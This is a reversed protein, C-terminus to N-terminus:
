GALMYRCNSPLNVLKHLELSSTPCLVSPMQDIVFRDQLADNISFSILLFPASEFLEKWKEAILEWTFEKLIFERMERRKELSINEITQMAEILTSLYNESSSTSFGYRVTENLASGEIIVPLAGAFQARLATICFKETLICPYTWISAQEYARNLEDHGVLGHEHVDLLRLLIIQSRAKAEKEPALMGWHQWGYYIDLSARPFQRKIEPWNDLLIELGQAYNSGYICSYPNKREQVSEFQDPNVANGFIKTFMVFAPHKSIWNERQWKSIWLVDDFSNIQENTVHVLYADHPWLYVKTARKRLEKGIWSQRWSIAIDFNIEEKICTDVFRPNADPLSHSSNEPPNALVIVRYGLKALKQSIYIVAEEAGTIGSKVSDPDWSEIRPDKYCFIGITKRKVQPVNQNEQVSKFRSFAPFLVMITLIFCSVAFILKKYKAM